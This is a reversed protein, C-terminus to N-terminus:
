QVPLVVDQRLLLNNQSDRVEITVKWDGSMSFPVLTAYRGNGQETAQGQMLGMSHGMMDALLNVTAGTLPQGSADKVDIVLETEAQSNPPNPNTSVAIEPQGSSAPTPAAAPPASCAGALAVVILFVTVILTNRYM